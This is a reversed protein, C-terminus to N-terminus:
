LVDYVNQSQFIMESVLLSQVTVMGQREILLTDKFLSKELLVSSEHEFM